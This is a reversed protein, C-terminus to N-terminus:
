GSYYYKIAISNKPQSSQMKGQKTGGFAHQHHEGPQCKGGEADKTTTKQAGFQEVEEAELNPELYSMASCYISWRM